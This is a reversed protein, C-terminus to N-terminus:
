VEKIFISDMINSLIGIYGFERLDSFFMQSWNNGIKEANERILVM